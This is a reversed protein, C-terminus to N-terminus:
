SNGRVGGGTKGDQWKRYGSYASSGANLISLGVRGYDAYGPGGVSSLATTTQNQIQQAQDARASTSRAYNTASTASAEFGQGALDGLLAAVSTGGIGDAAIGATASAQQRALERAIKSQEMSQGERDEIGQRSLADYNDKAAQNIAESQADATRRQAQISMAGSAAGVVASIGAIISAAECM